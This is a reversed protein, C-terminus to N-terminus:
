EEQSKELHEDERHFVIRTPRIGTALGEKPGVFVNPHQVPQKHGLVLAGLQRLLGGFAGTSPTATRPSALQPPRMRGHRWLEFFHCSQPRHRKPRRMRNAATSRLVTPRGVLLLQSLSKRQRRSQAVRRSPFVQFNLLQNTQPFFAPRSLHVGIERALQVGLMQASLSPTARSATPTVYVIQLPQM